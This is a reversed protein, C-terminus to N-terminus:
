ANVKTARTLDSNTMYVNGDKNYLVLNPYEGPNVYSWFVAVGIIALM